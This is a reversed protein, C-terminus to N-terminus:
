LEARAQGNELPFGIGELRGSFNIDFNEELTLPLENRDFQGYTNFAILLSFILLVNKM